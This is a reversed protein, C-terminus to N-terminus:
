AIRFLREENYGNCETSCLDVDYSSVTGQKVADACCNGCEISAQKAAKEGELGKAWDYVNLACEYSALTTFGRENAMDEATVVTGAWTRSQFSAAGVATQNGFYTALGIVAVVAVVALVMLGYKEAKKNM